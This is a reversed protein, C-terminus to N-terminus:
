IGPQLCGQVKWTEEEEKFGCSFYDCESTASSSILAVSLRGFMHCCDGGIADFRLLSLAYLILIHDCVAVLEVTTSLSPM